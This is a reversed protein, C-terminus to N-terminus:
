QTKNRIDRFVSSEDRMLVKFLYKGLLTAGQPSFHIPELVIGAGHERYIRRCYPELDIVKFGMARCEEELFRHVVTLPYHEIDSMFPFIVVLVQFHNRLSLERLELLAKKSIQWHSSQMVYNGIGIFSLQTEIEKEPIGFERAKRVIPDRLKQYDSDPLDQIEKNRDRIYRWISQQGRFYYELKENGRLVNLRRDLLQLLRSHRYLFQLIRIELPARESEVRWHSKDNFFDLEMSAYRSDNLTYGVVVLDPRLPLGREKFFEIAQETEYGSVGFNLVEVPLHRERFQKELQAPISDEQQVNFGYVVSDGLFVIRKWGPPPEAGYERGRFGARNIRHIIGNEDAIEAGARPRYFLKKNESTEHVLLRHTEPQCRSIPPCVIRCAIELVLLTLLFSAVSLLSGYVIKLVWPKKNRGGKM